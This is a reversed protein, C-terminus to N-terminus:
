EWEFLDFEFEASHDKCCTWCHGIKKAHWGHPCHPREKFCAKWCVAASDSDDRYIPEATSGLLLASTTMFIITSFKM